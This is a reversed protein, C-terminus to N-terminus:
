KTVLARYMEENFGVVLTKGVRLTPARLKGSPGVLLGHIATVDVPENRLDIRVIKKGRTGVIMQCGEVVSMIMDSVIPEKKADVREVVQVKAKALSAVAKQCTDCGSRLYGWDVKPM